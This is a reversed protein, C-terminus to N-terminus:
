SRAWRPATSRSHRRAAPAHDPRCGSARRAGSSAGSTSRARSSRRGRTAARPSASRTSCTSISCRRCSPRALEGRVGAAPRRRHGGLWWADEVRGPPATRCNRRRCCEHLVTEARRLCCRAPGPCLRVVRVGTTSGAAIAASRRTRWAQRAVAVLDVASELCVVRACCSDDSAPPWRRSWTRCAATRTRHWARGAALPATRRGTGAPYQLRRAPHPRGGPAATDHTLQGQLFSAADPGDLRLVGLFPLPRRSTESPQCPEHRHPLSDVPRRPERRSTRLGNAPLLLHSSIECASKVASTRHHM